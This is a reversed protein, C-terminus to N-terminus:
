TFMLTIHLILNQISNSIIVQNDQSNTFSSSTNISNSRFARASEGFSRGRSDDDRGSSNMEIVTLPINPTTGRMAAQHQRYRQQLSGMRDATPQRAHDPPVQSLLPPSPATECHVFLM